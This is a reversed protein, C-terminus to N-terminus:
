GVCGRERRVKIRGQMVPVRAGAFFMTKLYRMGNLARVPLPQLGGGCAILRQLTEGSNLSGLISM